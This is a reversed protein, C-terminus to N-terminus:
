LFAHIHMARRSSGWMRGIEQREKLSAIRQSAAAQRMPEAKGHDLNPDMSALSALHPEVVM